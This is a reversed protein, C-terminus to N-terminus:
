LAEAIVLPQIAEPMICREHPATNVSARTSTDRFAEEQAQFTTVVAPDFHAGAGDLIIKRAENHTMAKKYCRESTLADYVDALAMVRATLPIAAGKLGDPYGNGDWREHHGGAIDRCMELFPAGPSDKLLNEFFRRGIAAHTKIVEFEEGTLKGPKRLIGDPIAM